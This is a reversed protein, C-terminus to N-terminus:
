DRPDPGDVTATLFAGCGDCQVPAGTGRAIDDLADQNLGMMVPGGTAALPGDHALLRAAREDCCRGFILSGDAGIGTEIGHAVNARHTFQLITTM